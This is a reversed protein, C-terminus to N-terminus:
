AVGPNMVANLLARWRDWDQAVDIRDMGGHWTKIMQKSIIRGGIGLDELHDRERLDEVLVRYAGRREGIRAV